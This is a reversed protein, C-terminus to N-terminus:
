GSRGTRRLKTRPFAPPLEFREIGLEALVVRGEATTHLELLATELAEKVAPDLDPHVAIPPTVYPPTQAVSRVDARLTPDGKALREFTFGDVLAAEVLGERVARVARDHSKIAVKHASGAMEAADPACVPEAIALTDFFDTKRAAQVIVYSPLFRSGRVQPVAIASLGFGAHGREYGENCLQVIDAQRSRLLNNVEAFSRRFTLGVPRGLRKSLIDALDLYVRYAQHPSDPMAVAFRLQDRAPAPKASPQSRHPGGSLRVTRPKRAETCATAVLAVVLLSVWAASRRGM